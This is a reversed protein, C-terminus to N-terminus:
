SSLFISSVFREYTMRGGNPFAANERIACDSCFKRCSQLKLLLSFHLVRLTRVDHTSRKSICRVGSHRLLRFGKLNSQWAARSCRTAHTIDYRKQGCTLRWLVRSDISLVRVFKRVPLSFSNLVQLFCCLFIYAQFAVFSKTRVYIIYAHETQFHLTSGSAGCWDAACCAFDKWTRNGRLALRQSFALATSRVDCLAIMALSKSGSTTLLDTGLHNVVLEQCVICDNLLNHPSRQSLTLALLIKNMNISCWMNLLQSFCLANMWKLLYPALRQDFMEIMELSKSGSTTLLDTGLHNVVLEQCVICDNLLNHPSRQSLTLALLIKNMNISCWMNLLQSFCLANMWKLLYPALRQDFMEIMELSKSGSTTLLDTGLHNVVLEQCVICDNLLNHPSRQSLTLALLIKNMSISCWMNLLQSFCLANMWKLLYPALRQDFMEIMELSKSGSTTLLDTGLHNVVLEQCVICDNLLNHPSRQSLTLALLIKNMNISCWMNLLQSFCLANMWKLLYPALCQDFMEIMELSKSGSTTLLDTGLHNVVLEQCVICDNLLNHPSRQSLTLALLIKNMNISCWMNLLQSFCLANMWKLLYPALRQDFMEIMELSKSGSTTLLDTGLHNVVLEQCVICDNLLNHPSRQSLTLALLIKNMSISCWMNLLQSFCLANMWKLLYPALRQDFMEIMELSKSGSTTLLDTGLHNVVLEQCVICDNLLNHPSRQSLTLALLIKNMNISCWMNLLQSFCLANMWKLLYPALRQDFMEIMELSKSGSTTLLDTGLHNVVLEQCVICDNLLNHPSRQSLTLALLIKNMSISCWMNLLQSFCLANMWKLLYPALRQDFMEIMELSKSGSTTLLDTGLHNVVLEQCVICDNLLNHPSRQSLTLALLIKNMSISCWMNLLQSFCLANMWKLLYPALRQDFMEIMELSKSGSTTLLDTGLHNVVLEQCVICDNLLNHPSRQSLTLALLIKNMNISCWMNLLQSFCLANMWKLLYPALRQDFMEIMELSKSGSTTLLDTGLIQWRSSCTWEVTLCMCYCNGLSWKSNCCRQSLTLALLIKNMNISCWMNLLQSFCLANMWKLLYPALRQDFMEIMELSKSGSTTLLDTGLHNVVLEQCVICDNLLNHPSRQSLTLALLIKNMNISCWMNLLQSFCLANMWKLLDSGSTSRVDWDNWSIELWVNNSPWHWSSKCCTRSM